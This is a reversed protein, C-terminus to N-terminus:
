THGYAIFLRAQLLKNEKKLDELRAQEKELEHYLEQVLHDSSPMGGMGMGAIPMGQTPQGNPHGPYMPKAPGMDRHLCAVSQGSLVPSRCMGNHM